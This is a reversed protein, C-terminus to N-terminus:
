RPCKRKGRIEGYEQQLKKRIQRGTLAFTIISLVALLVTVAMLAIGSFLLLESESLGLM